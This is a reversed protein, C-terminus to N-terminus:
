LKGSKQLTSQFGDKEIIDKKYFKKFTSDSAWQGRKVIENLSVGVSSAKSTSASRTSHAKFMNTDIGASALFHVLWRSVTSTSVPKHPKILGLLMQTHGNRRSKTRDLYQDITRCVCLSSDEEFVKFTLVPAVKGKKWVKSLKSFTFTYLNSSKALYNIDLNTIESVRSAATLALLTVLKYSLLKDSISDDVPLTRIYALVVDVDWIFTYKPIPPRENFVGSMLSSVRPHEGVSIGDIPDHYASIASRTSGISSYGLGSAFLESLFDM